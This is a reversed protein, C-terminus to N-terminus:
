KGADLAEVFKTLRELLRQADARMKGAEAGADEFASLRTRLEDAAAVQERLTAAETDAQTRAAEAAELQSSLETRAAEGQEALQQVESQAAALSQEASTRIRALGERFREADQARGDREAELDARARALEEETRRLAASLEEIRAEAAVLDARLAVDGSAAPVEAEPETEAPADSEAPAENEEVPVDDAPADDPARRVNIFRPRLLTQKAGPAPLDVVLDHGFELVAAEVGVPTEDWVFQARWPKGDELASPVIEGVAKLRHAEGSGSVLLVPEDAPTQELGHFKGAIEL